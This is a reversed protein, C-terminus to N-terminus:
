EPHRRIATIRVFILCCIINPSHCGDNKLHTEEHGRIRGLRRELARSGMDVSNM